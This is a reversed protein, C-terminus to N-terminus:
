NKFHIHLIKLCDMKLRPDTCGPFAKKSPANQTSCHGLQSGMVFKLMPQESVSGNNNDDSKGRENKRSNTSDGHDIDDTMRAIM